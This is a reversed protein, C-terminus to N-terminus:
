RCRRVLDHIAQIVLDPEDLHIYHGAREAHLHESNASLGALEDQLQAWVPWSEGTGDARTLVTLPISGLGPPQGWAFTAMIM